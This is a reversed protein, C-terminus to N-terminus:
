ETWSRFIECIEPDQLKEFLIDFIGTNVICKYSHVQRSIVDGTIAYNIIPCIGCFPQYVCDCCEPLGELVSCKCLGRTIPSNMLSDYDDSHVNGVCFSTDGMEGLMRGEDCTYVDGDYYYALQGTAAGCPSRLEMYNVGIGDFIKKLAITAFGERIYYGKRNVQLIYEICKRYFDVFEEATYGIYQWNESAKGLPTLPRIFIQELGLSAYTDVIEKYAPFSYRTTTQIAGVHVGRDRLMGVKRQLLTYGNDGSAMPRNTNQLMEPGDLSTSINVHYTLLFDLIGPTLLSLNSVLNYRITKRGKKEEAYRVIEQIVEFNLLPEGGQFEFDLQDQPSQLAIDVAKYATDADMRFGTNKSDARAQCYVCKFNCSKTVVFIHLSTPVFLYSRADRMCPKTNALFSEESGQFWFLNHELANELEPKDDVRSHVFDNFENMELLLYGGFDNTILVKSGFKKFHFPAIM